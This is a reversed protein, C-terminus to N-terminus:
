GAPITGKVTKASERVQCRWQSHDHVLRCSQVIWSGDFLKFRDGPMVRIPNSGSMLTNAFCIVMQDTPSWGAVAMQFDAENPTTRRFRVNNAPAVLDTVRQPHFEFGGVEVGDMWQWDSEYDVSLLNIVNGDGPPVWAVTGEQETEIEGLQDAWVPQSASPFLVYRPVSRSLTVSYRGADAGSYKTCPIALNWATLSQEADFAHIDLGGARVFYFTQSAAGTWGAYTSIYGLHATWAPQSAGEFLYYTKGEELVVSYRGADAGSLAACPVRFSTWDAMSQDAPFAYLTAGAVYTFSVVM